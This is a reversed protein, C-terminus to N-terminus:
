PAQPDTEFEGLHLAERAAPSFWGTPSENLVYRSDASDLFATWVALVKRFM